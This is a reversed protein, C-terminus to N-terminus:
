HRAIVLECLWTNVEQPNNLRYPTSTKVNQSAVRVAYGGYKHVTNFAEEDKDDDGFYIIVEDKDTDQRIISEVAISKRAMKPALELFIEDGTLVYDDGPRQRYVVNRAEDLVNKTIDPPAFRAHLALSWGKDELYFGTQGAIIKGWEPILNEIVPRVQQYPLMNYIQGDPLEMELGYTGSKLLRKVPLLKQIHALRRGSIIAPLVGPSSVLQKLLAIIEPDPFIDDPSPAFPALTGDYDLFLRLTKASVALSSLRSINEQM